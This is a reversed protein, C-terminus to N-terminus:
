SVELDMSMLALPLLVLWDFIIVSTTAVAVMYLLRWPRIVFKTNLGM